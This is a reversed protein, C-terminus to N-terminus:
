GDESEEAEAPLIEGTMPDVHLEHEEGDVVYEVEWAGDEFETEVIGTYGLAELKALIESKPLAGEPPIEVEEGEEGEGDDEAELDETEATESAADGAAEPEVMEPAPTGCAVLATALLVTWLNKM